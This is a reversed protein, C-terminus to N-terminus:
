LPPGSDGSGPQVGIHVHSALSKGGGVVDATGTVTGATAAGTTILNSSGFDITGAVGDVPNNFQVPGDLVILPATIKVMTDSWDIKSLGSLTRVIAGTPGYIVIKDPDDAASFSNSGMPFFSLASLNGARSSLSPAGAGLGTIGGISVTAPFCVGTCGVKLPLRIYESGVVPVTVNPLSEQVLFTVTVIPGMVKAVKCPLAMGLQSIAQRAARLAAEQDSIAAPTKLYSTM